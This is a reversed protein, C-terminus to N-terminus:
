TNRMSGSHWEGHPVAGVFNRLFYNENAKRCFICHLLLQVFAGCSVRPSFWAYLKKAKSWFWGLQNWVFCVLGTVIHGSDGEKWICASSFILEFRSTHFFLQKAAMPSARPANLPFTVNNTGGRPRLAGRGLWRGALPSLWAAHERSRLRSLFKESSFTLSM